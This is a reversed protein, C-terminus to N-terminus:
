ALRRFRFAYAATLLVLFPVGYALTLRFPETFATTALIAAMLGAGLLSGYPHGWVRFALTQAAVRRRFALHTVFIMMWTFMAGFMSIAIMSTFAQDPLLANMAAAVAVGLSSLGLAAVPAGQRNLRGFVAPAQGARSLSFMMRTSAYLQSNMASLAATLIVFNMVGAAGPVGTAAMVRVFPSGGAGATTWPIIALMLALSALYFVVLRFLTARFARSVAVRPERAEGAAVAIVEISLYSFIALIVAVWLGWLGNPMFGGHSVYNHFGIDSGAPAGFVVVAGLVIFALIAAVKILSFLYELAGFVRVSTANIAVLGGSFGLVWWWGPADPLWYKMYLAVASVETGVALVLCSWYAYRVLFGALPGLYEEAYVGFSGPTPQAITMEALAGMLLLAIVGGIAYSVLVSPGALGIAFTSGLFLGTGVAGGIAIMSLQGSTLSRHLGAERAVPDNPDDM